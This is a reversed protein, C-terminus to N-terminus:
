NLKINRLETLYRQYYGDLIKEELEKAKMMREEYDDKSEGKKKPDFIGTANKDAHFENYFAYEVFIKKSLNWLLVKKDVGGSALLDGDANVAICNVIGEHGSFTYIMKGTKTQWLRISGDFSASIIHNGDPAFEIDLIGKDHGSYTMVVEGTEFDWLRITQDRSCSAFYQGGPHFEIDYINDTHKELSKMLEGTKANWVKVTRDLSGSVLYKEDPSFTVPLTSKEHGELIFEIEQTQVDWVKLTYDYSGAAIKNREPAYDLSWIHTSNGKFVALTNNNMDILKIDNGSGFFLNNVQTIEIARPPFYNDSLKSDVELTQLNYFCLLKDEGGSALFKNDPSFAVSLVSGKHEKFVKLLYEDDQASLKNIILLNLLLFALSKM